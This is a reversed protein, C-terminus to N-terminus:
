SFNTNDFLFLESYDSCTHLRVLSKSSVCVFSLCLYFSMEINLITIEVVHASRSIKALPPRIKVVNTKRKISSHHSSRLVVILPGDDAWWCFVMLIANRQRASSSGVNFAPDTAQYNKLPDPGSKSLFGINQLKEPPPTSGPGGVPDACASSLQGYM